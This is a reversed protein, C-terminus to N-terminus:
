AQLKHLFDSTIQIVNETVQPDDGFGHIWQVASERRFWTLQRKAYQRTAITTLEIAQDLSLTGGIVALAERYGISEFPKATAPVGEALLLRVEEILGAAFMARTREGIRAHLAAREPDLVIKLVRFGQLASRGQLFLETAPKRQLICLEVARILKNADNPHIRAAVAPDLRTLLRHLRGAHRIEIASLRARLDDNRGPGEALGDVLARLYFGTGGAVIPLAGRFTVDQLVERARRAYDGATSIESPDLVDILHHSIGRRQAPPTKATGIDLGRYLQLSDCNLIEGGFRAALELALASKGSATPGAVAVLPSMEHSVDATIPM